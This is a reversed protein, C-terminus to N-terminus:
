LMPYISRSLNVGHPLLWSSHYICPQEQTAGMQTDASSQRELNHLISDLGWGLNQSLNFSNQKVESPSAGGDYRRLTMEGWVRQTGAAVSNRIRRANSSRCGNEERPEKDEGM